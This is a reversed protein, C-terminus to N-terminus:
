ACDVAPEEPALTTTPASLAIPESPARVVDDFSRGLVLELVGTAGPDPVSTASPVTAALLEAAAAQDPSFRIVTGPTPQEANAVDGIGFGLSRLTEGVEGALGSRDSANFIEITVDSPAPGSDGTGPETADAPLPADTRV